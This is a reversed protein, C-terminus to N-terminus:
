RFPRTSAEGGVEASTYGVAGAPEIVAVDDDTMEVVIPDGCCLCPADIRVEQGPVLWRIAM